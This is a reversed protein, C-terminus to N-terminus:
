EADVQRWLGIGTRGNKLRVQVRRNGQVDYSAEMNAKRNRQEQERRGGGGGGKGAAM